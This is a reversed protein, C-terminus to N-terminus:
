RISWSNPLQVYILGQSTLKYKSPLVMEFFARHSYREPSCLKVNRETKVVKLRNLEKQIKMGTSQSRNCIFGVKRNSLILKDNISTEVAQLSGYKRLVKKLQKLPMKKHINIVNKKEEVAEHQHQLNNKILSYRLLTLQDKRNASYKIPILTSKLKNNLKRSGILILNGDTVKILGKQAMIKLHYHLTGVSCHLADSLRRISYNYFIPKKHVKRLQVFYILTFVWGEDVAQKVLKYPIWTKNKFNQKKYNM